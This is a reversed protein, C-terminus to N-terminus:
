QGLKLEILMLIPDKATSIHGFYKFSRQIKHNMMERSKKLAINIM